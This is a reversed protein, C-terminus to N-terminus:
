PAVAARIMQAATNIKGTYGTAGFGDAISRWPPAAM